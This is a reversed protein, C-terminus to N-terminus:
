ITIISPKGNDEKYLSSFPIDNLLCSSICEIRFTDYNNFGTVKLVKGDPFNLPLTNLFSTYRFMAAYIKDIEYKTKPLISQDIILRYGNYFIGNALKNTDIMTNHEMIGYFPKM